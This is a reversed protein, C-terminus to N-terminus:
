LIKDVEKCAKEPTITAEETTQLAGILIMMTQTIWITKAVAVITIGSPNESAVLQHDKGTEIETIM